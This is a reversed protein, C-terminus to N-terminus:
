SCPLGPAERGAAPNAAAPFLDAMFLNTVTRRSSTASAANASTASGVTRIFDRVTSANVRGLRMREYSGMLTGMSWERCTWM